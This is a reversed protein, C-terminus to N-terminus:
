GWPGREGRAKRTARRAAQGTRGGMRDARASVAAWEATKEAHCSGAGSCLAQGNAATTEGGAEREKIHDFDFPHLKRWIGDADLIAIERECGECFSRFVEDAGKVSQRLLIQNQMTKTFPKRAESLPATFKM